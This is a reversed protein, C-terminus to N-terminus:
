SATCSDSVTHFLDFYELPTNVTLLIFLDDRSTAHVYACRFRRSVNRRIRRISSEAFQSKPSTLQSRGIM